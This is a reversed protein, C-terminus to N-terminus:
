LHPRSLMSLYEPTGIQLLQQQQQQLKKGPGTDQIGEPRCRAPTPVPLM